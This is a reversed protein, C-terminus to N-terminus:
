IGNEVAKVEAQAAETAVAETAKAAEAVVPKEEAVAAAVTQETQAKIAEAHAAVAEVDQHLAPDVKGKLEAIKALLAHWLNTIESM